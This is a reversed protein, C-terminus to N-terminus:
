GNGVEQDHDRLAARAAAAAPANHHATEQVYEVLGRLAEALREARAEHKIAEGAMADARVRLAEIEADQADAGDVDAPQQAEKRGDHRGAMYAVTLDDDDVDPLTPAPQQASLAAIAADLAACRERLRELVEAHEM